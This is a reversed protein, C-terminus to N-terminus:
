AALIQACGIAYNGQAISGYSVETGLKSGISIVVKLRLLTSSKHPQLYSGRIYQTKLLSFIM